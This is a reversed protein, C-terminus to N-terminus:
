NLRTKFRNHMEPEQRYFEIDRNDTVKIDEVNRVYDNTFFVNNDYKIVLKKCRIKGDSDPSVDGTLIVQSDVIQCKIIKSIEFEHIDKFHRIKLKVGYGLLERVSAMKFLDM